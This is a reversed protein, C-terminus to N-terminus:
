VSLGRGVRVICHRSTRCAAVAIALVFWVGFGAEVTTNWVGFDADEVQTPLFGANVFKWGANM